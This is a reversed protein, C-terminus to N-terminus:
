RVKGERGGKRGEERGEKRAARRGEERGERGGEAVVRRRHDSRSADSEGNTIQAFRVLSFQVESM